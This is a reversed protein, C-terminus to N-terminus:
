PKEVSMWPTMDDRPAMPDYFGAPVHETMESVARALVDPDISREPTEDPDASRQWWDDRSVEEDATQTPVACPEYNHGDGGYNGDRESVRYLAHILGEAFGACASRVVEQLKDDNMM